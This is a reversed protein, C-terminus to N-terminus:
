RNEGSAKKAEALRRLMESRLTVLNLSVNGEVRCMPSRLNHVQRIADLGTLPMAVYKEAEIRSYKVACEAMTESSNVQVPTAVNHAKGWDLILRDMRFPVVEGNGFEICGKLAPFMLDSETDAENQDPTQNGRRLLYFTSYRRTEDPHKALTCTLLAQYDGESFARPKAKLDIVTPEAMAATCLAVGVIGMLIRAFKM